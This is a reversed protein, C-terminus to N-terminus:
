NERENKEKYCDLLEENLKEGRNWLVKIVGVLATFVAGIGSLVWPIWGTFENAQIGAEIAPDM